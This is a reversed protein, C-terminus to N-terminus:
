HEQQIADSATFVFKILNLDSWKLNTKVSVNFTLECWLYDTKDYVYNRAYTHDKLVDASSERRATEEDSAEDEGNMEIGEDEDGSICGADVIEELVEPEDYDNEDDNRNKLRVATADDEDNQFFHM